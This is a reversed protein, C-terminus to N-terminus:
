GEPAVESYEADLVEGDGTERAANEADLEALLDEVTVSATLSVSRSPVPGITSRDLIAQAATLRASAPAKPDQLIALMTNFAAATALDFRARVEGTIARAIRHHGLLAAAILRADSEDTAYGARIAAEVGHQPGGLEFIAAVFAAERPDTLDAITLSRRTM